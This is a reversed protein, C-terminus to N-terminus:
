PAVPQISPTSALAFQQTSQNTAHPAAAQQKPSSQPAAPLSAAIYQPTPLPDPGTQSIVSTASLVGSSESSFTFGRSAAAATLSAASRSVALPTNVRETTPTKPTPTGRRGSIRSPKATALTASSASHQDTGSTAGATAAG